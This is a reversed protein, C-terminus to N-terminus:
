RAGHGSFYRDDATVTAVITTNSVAVGTSAAFTWRCGGPGAGVGLPASTGSKVLSVELPKVTRLRCNEQLKRSVSSGLHHSTCLDQACRNAVLYPM